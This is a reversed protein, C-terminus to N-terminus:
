VICFSMPSEPWSSAQYKQHIQNQLHIVGLYEQSVERSRGPATRPSAPCPSFSDL